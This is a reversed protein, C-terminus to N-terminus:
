RRRHAKAALVVKEPVQEAAPGHGEDAIILLRPSFTLNIETRRERSCSIVM